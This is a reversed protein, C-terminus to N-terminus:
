KTPNTNTSTEAAATKERESQDVYSSESVLLILPLGVTRKVSEWYRILISYVLLGTEGEGFLLYELSQKMLTRHTLGLVVSRPQLLESIYAISNAIAVAGFAEIVFHEGEDFARLRLPALFESRNDLLNVHLFALPGEVKYYKRVKHALYTRHESTAIHHPILNVKVGRVTEWLQASDADMFTAESVRMETSRMIRSLASATLLLFIFISAIIAGDPREIVNAIVTYVFVFAVLLFYFPLFLTGPKRVSAERWLSITVAVAASLMLVLVGTAYAGGQASVSARFVLTVVVDVALLILVLPRQYAVWDPAMGFRPLYRPILNLLGAMASAGAFWLILITSLDYVTGFANGMYLHALYAIARGDAPGGVRYASEPILAATVFSSLLLMVSMIAAATVLLKRTNSIRGPITEESKGPEAGSVLPMVSVGTEFGSLGLALKPFFLASAIFIATWDGRMILAAHWHSFLEIHLLVKSGCWLLVILNLVLYPIAVFDAVRIAERFGKLFVIALLILLGLTLRMRSDGAFPHLYPNAIAHRAADAASLTMTIVFDTAAFGLLILVLIKGTWGPLLNELLAISGQGAYSRQAVAAYVPVAALLTVAVLVATAPLALAGAALLAIGPQYGLTSFYDVGTLWLVLYWPYTREPRQSAKALNDHSLFRALWGKPSEQPTPLRLVVDPPAQTSMDVSRRASM